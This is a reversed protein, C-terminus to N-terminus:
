DTGDTILTLLYQPTQTKQVSSEMSTSLTKRQKKKLSINDIKHVYYFQISFLIEEERRYQYQKCLIIYLFHSLDITSM